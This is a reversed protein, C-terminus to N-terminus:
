NDKSISEAEWVVKAQEFKAKLSQLEEEKSELQKSVEEPVKNASGFLFMDESVAFSSEFKTDGGITLENMGFKNRTELRITLERIKKDREEVSV